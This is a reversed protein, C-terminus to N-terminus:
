NVLPDIIEAFKEIPLAGKLEEGNVFFTPTSRVGFETAARDRVARIGAAVESNQLCAEFTEKTFGANRAINFLERAVQESRAWTDQQTFLEDILPFYKSDDACRALMFAALSRDDGEFPFERFIMRAKGTDIYKEKLMPYTNVHFNACHPCTASAYEIITVPADDSGISRDGLPGPKLLEEMDTAYARGALGAGLSPALVASVAIAQTFQRRDLRM